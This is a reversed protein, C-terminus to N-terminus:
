KDEVNDWSITINCSDDNLRYETKYGLLTLEDLLEKKFTRNLCNGVYTIKTEGELSAENIWKYIRKKIAAGTMSQALARSASIIHPNNKLLKEKKIDKDM